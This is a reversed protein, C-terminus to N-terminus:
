RLSGFIRGGGGKKCMSTFTPLPRKSLYDILGTCIGAGSRTISNRELDIIVVVATVKQFFSRQAHVVLSWHRQNHQYWASFCQLLKCWWPVIGRVHILVCDVFSSFWFSALLIGLLRESRPTLSPPPMQEFPTYKQSSVTICKIICVHTLM